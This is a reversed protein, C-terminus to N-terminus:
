RIKEDELEESYKVTNKDKRSKKIKKYKKIKNFDNKKYTKSM